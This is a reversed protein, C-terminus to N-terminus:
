AKTSSVEPQPPVGAQAQHTTALLKQIDESELTEKCMLASAVTDLDARRKLLIAKVRQYLRDIRERVEDDIAEATDESYNKEEM